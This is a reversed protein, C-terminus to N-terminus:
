ERICTKKCRNKKEDNKMEIKDGTQRGFNVFM